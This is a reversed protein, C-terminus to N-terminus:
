CPLPVTHRDHLRYVLSPSLSLSLTSCDLRSAIALPGTPCTAESRRLPVLPVLSTSSLFFFRLFSRLLVPSRPSNNRVSTVHDNSCEYDHPIDRASPLLKWNSVPFEQIRERSRLRKNGRPKMGSQLAVKYETHRTARTAQEEM